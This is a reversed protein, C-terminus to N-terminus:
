PRLYPLEITFVTGHPKQDLVRIFGGHDNIITRVIALGLGQGGPGSTVYPEFIRNRVEQPLGPGNDAVTLNVGSLDDLDITIEVLGLGGTAQTSNALLNTIVRGMQEPDFIFPGIQKKVTLLFEMGPHAQRFLGLSEEVVQALDTPQPNIQPLRAFQSFEDVLSRMNEVQRIIIETCERFIEGDDQPELREAFRRLLRQAALSIPTLPNKVEHAIRRAVEQWAALRQAKELESIDDFTLLSGIINGDEDKLSQRSVILSLTRGNIEAYVRERPLPVSPGLLTEIAPPLLGVAEPVTLALRDLAAQNITVVKKNLDLVVVGSSVEKLVMEVFRRRSDIEQYSAKLELTMQNFATVLHAMEGSNHSPALVFDLEGRAVRRTGEVLEIVPGALSGALHSGIWISLFVALLTVGALSTLQSARFPRRIGVAAQYKALAQRVEQYQETLFDGRLSYIVLYGAMLHEGPPYLPWALGGATKDASTLPITQGTPDLLWEKPWPSSAPKEGVRVALKGQPNYYELAKLHTRARNAELFSKIEGAPESWNFNQALLAMTIGDGYSILLRRDLELTLEALELSDNMTEKISSGFWTDHDQGILLYSFYFILITPALSLGVFSVVMKTQLSGYNRHEFFIRYLGRLILFLLFGLILVSFNISVLTIVGQNSSLGPGLNLLHRQIVTLLFLGIAMLCLLIREFRKKRRAKEPTLSPRPQDTPEAM